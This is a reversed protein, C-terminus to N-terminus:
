IQKGECNVIWEVISYYTFTNYTSVQTLSDDLSSEGIYIYGTREAVGRRRERSHPRLAV